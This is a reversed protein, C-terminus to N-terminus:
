GLVNMVNGAAWIKAHQYQASLVKTPSGAFTKGSTESITLTNASSDQKIFEWVGFPYSAYTLTITRNGTTCDVGYIGPQLNTQNTTLIPNTHGGGLNFSNASFGGAGATFQLASVIGGIHLNAVSNLDGTTDSPDGISLTFSPCDWILSFPYHDLFGAVDSGWSLLYIKGSAGISTNRAVWLGDYATTLNQPPAAGSMPTAQIPVWDGAVASNGVVVNKFDAVYVFEGAANPVAAALGANTLSRGIISGVANGSPDLGLYGNPQGKNALKEAGSPVTSSIM